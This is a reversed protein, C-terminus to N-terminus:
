FFDPSFGRKVKMVKGLIDSLDINQLDIQAEVRKTGVMCVLTCLVSVLIKKM